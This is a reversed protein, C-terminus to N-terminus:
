KFKKKQYKFQKSKKQILANFKCPQEYLTESMYHELVWGMMLTMREGDIVEQERWVRLGAEKFPVIKIKAKITQVEHECHQQSQSESLNM